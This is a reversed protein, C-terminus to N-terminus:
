VQSIERLRAIQQWGTQGPLRCEWFNWGNVSTGTVARAAASPSDYPQGKVVLAGDEVRGLHERGMYTTRFDTGQPFRVGKSMWDGPAADSSRESAPVMQNSAELGLINRIVDNYTTSETERLATLAKFVEFDIEITQM